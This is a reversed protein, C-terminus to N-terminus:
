YRSGVGSFLHAELVVVDAVWYTCTQDSDTRQNHHTYPTTSKARPPYLGGHNHSLREDTEVPSFRCPGAKGAKLEM